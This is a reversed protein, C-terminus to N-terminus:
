AVCIPLLERTVVLLFIKEYAASTRTYIVRPSFMNSSAPLTRLTATFWIYYSLVAARSLIRPPLARGLSLDNPFKRSYMKMFVCCLVASKWRRVCQTINNENTHPFRKKEAVILASFLDCVVRTHRHRLWNLSNEKLYVFILNEKSHIMLNNFSSNMLAYYNIIM